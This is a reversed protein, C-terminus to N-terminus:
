KSISCEICTVLEVNYLLTSTVKNEFMVCIMVRVLQIMVNSRSAKRHGAGQLMGDRDEEHLCDVICYLIFHYLIIYYVIILM